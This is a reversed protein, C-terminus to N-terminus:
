KTVKRGLVDFQANDKVIVLRGSVMAKQVKPLTTSAEFGSTGDITITMDRTVNTITLRGLTADYTYSAGNVSVEDKQPHQKPTGLYCIFGAKTTYNYRPSVNTSGVYDVEHVTLSNDNKLVQIALEPYDIFPNRNGQYNQAGDNRVMETLSPPDQMHWKLLTTLSEFVGSSSKLKSLTCESNYLSNKHGGAQAYVIYDYLIVRAADGRYSGLNDKKYDKNNIAVEDPDYQNEGYAQNGRSSNVSTSAPRVSQMDHGMPDGKDAGKSQPWTHERNWTKGSDWTGNMSRGDYYGIINSANNLDKDVKIYNNRLSNYSYSSSGIKSTEGMLTNLLGFLDDGTTAMLNAPSCDDKYYNNQKTQYDTYAQLGEDSAVHAQMDIGAYAISYSLIVGLLLTAKKM